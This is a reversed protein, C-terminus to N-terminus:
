NAQLQRVREPSLGTLAATTDPEFGGLSLLKKAFTEKEKQRAEPAERKAARAKRKADQAKRDADQLRREAAERAKREEAAMQRGYEEILPCMDRRGGETERFHGVGESFDRYFMDSARECKFDHVLRGVPDDGQYQGNVYIIHSGDGMAEETEIIRREMHYLPKGAGVIDQETLFIVYSDRLDRFRQGKELIRVDLM